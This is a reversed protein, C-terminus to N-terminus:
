VLVRLITKLHLVFEEKKIKRIIPQHLENVLQQNSMSKIASGKSKKDFFKYVILALGRHYREYKPNSATKFAKDGLFKDSQTRKTLDKHKSYAMYHQFCAKNLDNRFIYNTNGTQMFKQFNKCLNLSNLHMEPIFKNGAM